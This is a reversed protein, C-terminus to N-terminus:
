LAGANVAQKGLPTIFYSRSMPDHKDPCAIMQKASLLDFARSLITYCLPFDVGMFALKRIRRDPAGIVIAPYTMLDWQSRGGQALHKLVFLLTKDSLKVNHLM